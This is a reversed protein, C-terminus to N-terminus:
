SFTLTFILQILTFEYGVIYIISNIRICVFTPERDPEIVLKSSLREVVAGCDGVIGSPLAIGYFFHNKISKNYM